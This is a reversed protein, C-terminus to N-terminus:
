QKASSAPPAGPVPASSNAMDRVIKWSGDAQRQWVNLYRGSDAAAQGFMKGSFYYWGTEVAIDGGALLGDRRAAISDPEISAFWQKNYETIAAKGQLPQANPSYSVADDAYFAMVPSPDKAKMASVFTTMVSDLYAESPGAATQTDEPQESAMCGVLALASFLLFQRHRRM